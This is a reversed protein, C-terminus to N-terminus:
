PKSTLLQRVQGIKWSALLNPSCNPKYEHTQLIAKFCLCPYGPPQAIQKTSLSEGQSELQHAHAELSTYASSLAELDAEYKSAAAQADQAERLAEQLQRENQQLRVAGRQM